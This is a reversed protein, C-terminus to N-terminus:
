HGRSDLLPIPCASWPFHIRMLDTILSTSLDQVEIVPSGQRVAKRGLEEDSMPMLSICIGKNGCLEFLKELRRGEKMDPDLALLRTPSTPQTAIAM